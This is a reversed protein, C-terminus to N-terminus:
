QIELVSFKEIRLASDAPIISYIGKRRLPVLFIKRLLGERRKLSRTITLEITQSISLERRHSDTEIARIQISPSYFDWTKVTSKNLVTDRATVATDTVSRGVIQVIQTPKVLGIKKTLSDALSQFLASFEARTFVQPTAEYIALRGRFYKEVGAREAHATNYNTQWRDREKTLKYIQKAAALTAVFFFVAAIHSLKIMKFHYKKRPIPEPM